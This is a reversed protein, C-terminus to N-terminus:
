AGNCAICGGFGVWISMRQEHTALIFQAENPLQTNWNAVIRDFIKRSYAEGDRAVRDEHDIRLQANFIHGLQNSVHFGLVGAEVATATARGGNTVKYACCKSNTGAGFNM